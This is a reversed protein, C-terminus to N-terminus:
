SAPVMKGSSHAHPSPGPTRQEAHGRHGNGEDGHEPHLHLQGARTGGQGVLRREVQVAVETARARGKAHHPQAIGRRGADAGLRGVVGDGTPNGSREVPRDVEDGERYRPVRHGVQHVVLDAPQGGQSGSTTSTLMPALSTM